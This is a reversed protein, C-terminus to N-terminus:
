DYSLEKRLAEKAWRRNYKKKNVHAGYGGQFANFRPM